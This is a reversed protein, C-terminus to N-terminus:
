GVRGIGPADPTLFRQLVRAFNNDEEECRYRRIGELFQRSLYTHTM